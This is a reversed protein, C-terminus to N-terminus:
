RATTPQTMSSQLIALRSAVIRILGRAEWDQYIRVRWARGAHADAIDASGSYGGPESPSGPDAYITGLAWRVGGQALSPLTIATPQPGTTLQDLPLTMDRGCLALHALDLHADFWPMTTEPHALTSHGMMLQSAFPHM